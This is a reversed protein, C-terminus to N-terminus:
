QSHLCLLTEHGLMGKWLQILAQPILYKLFLEKINFNHIVFFNTTVVIESNRLICNVEIDCKNHIQNKREFEVENYNINKKCYIVSAKHIHFKALM